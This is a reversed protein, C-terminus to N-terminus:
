VDCKELQFLIGVMLVGALLAGALSWPSGSPVYQILALGSVGFMMLFGLVAQFIRLVSTHQERHNLTEQIEEGRKKLWANFLAWVIIWSFLVVASLLAAFLFIQNLMKLSLFYSVM